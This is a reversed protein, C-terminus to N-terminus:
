KVVKMEIYESLCKDCFSSVKNENEKKHKKCKRCNKSKIKKGPM